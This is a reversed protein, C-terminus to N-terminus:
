WKYVVCGGPPVADGAAPASGNWYLSGENDKSYYLGMSHMSAYYTDM